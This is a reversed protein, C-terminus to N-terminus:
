SDVFVRCDFDGILSKLDSVLDKLKSKVVFHYDEGYAYKSVKYSDEKQQNTTSYNFLLSVVSKAGPVLERPDLRKDFHNSMYSMKGHKDSKLWSELRPAEEELFDAKSIGCYDFGLRKAEQKIFATHKSKSLM